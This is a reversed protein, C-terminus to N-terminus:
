TFSQRWLTTKTKKATIDTPKPFILHEQEKRQLYPVIEDISNGEFLTRIKESTGIEEQYIGLDKIGTPSTTIMSENESMGVNELEQRHKGNSPIYRIHYPFGSSQIDTFDTLLMHDNEGELIGMEQLIKYTKLRATYYFAGIGESFPIEEIFVGQKTLLKKICLYLKNRLNLLKEISSFDCIESTVFWMAFIADFEEINEAIDIFDGPAFSIKVGDIVQSRTGYCKAIKERIHEIHDVLLDNFCIEKVRLQKAIEIAAISTRGQGEGMFLVRDSKHKTTKDVLHIASRFFETLVRLNQLLSSFGHKELDFGDYNGAVVTNQYYEKTIHHQDKFIAQAARKLNENNLTHHINGRSVARELEEHEFPQHKEM